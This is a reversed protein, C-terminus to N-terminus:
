PALEERDVVWLRKGRETGLRQLRASRGLIAKHITALTMGLRQADLAGAAQLAAQLRRRDDGMPRRAADIVECATFPGSGFVAEISDLLEAQRPDLAPRQLARQLEERVIRRLLPELLAADNM